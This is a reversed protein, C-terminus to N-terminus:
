EKLEVELVDKMQWSIQGVLFKRDIVDQNTKFHKQVLYNMTYDNVLPNKPKFPKTINKM